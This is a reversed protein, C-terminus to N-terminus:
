VSFNPFNKLVAAEILGEILAVDFKVGREKLLKQVYDLALTKKNAALNKLDGTIGAQEAYHVAWDVADLLYAYKSDKTAAKLEAIKEKLAIAIAAAVVPAALIMLDQAFKLLADLVPQLM